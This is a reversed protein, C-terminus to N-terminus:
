EGFGAADADAPADKGTMVFRVMDVCGTAGNPSPQKRASRIIQMAQEGFAAAPESAVIRPNGIEGWPAVDYAIAAWGEVARQRYAAPYVLRPADAWPRGAPCNSGEPRLSAPDPSAPAALPGAARWYPYLCGTRAGGTFRSQRVARVSADDLARNGTGEVVRANRPRGKADLDYGVMAWDRAGPSAPLADFDPFARNLPAPRPAEMCTSGAPAIRKWAAAPLRGTRPLISYAMLDSVPASDLPTATVTFDIACDSRAPGAPFRAAALAAGADDNGSAWSAAGDQVISLARGEADIRFRYARRAATGQPPFGMVLAPRPMAPAGIVQGGCRVTGPAWALLQWRTAQAEDVFIPPPPPVAGAPISALLAAAAPGPLLIKM